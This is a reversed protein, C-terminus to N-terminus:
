VCGCVGACRRPPHSDCRLTLVPPFQPPPLPCPLRVYEDGLKLELQEKQRFSLSQDHDGVEGQQKRMADLRVIAKQLQLCSHHDAVCVCVYSAGVVVVAM